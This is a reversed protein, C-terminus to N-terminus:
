ILSTYVSTDFRAGVADIVKVREDGASEVICTRDIALSRVKSGIVTFPLTEASWKAISLTDGVAAVSEHRSAPDGRPWTRITRAAPGAYSRSNACPSGKRKLLKMM